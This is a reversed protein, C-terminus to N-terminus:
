RDLWHCLPLPVPTYQRELHVEKNTRKEHEVAIRYAIDYHEPEYVVMHNITPMVAIGSNQDDDSDEGQDHDYLWFVYPSLQHLHRIEERPLGLVSIATELFEEFNKRLFEKNEALQELTPGRVTVM